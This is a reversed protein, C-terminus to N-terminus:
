TRRLVPGDPTDEVTFGLAEIQARLTDAENWNGETRAQERKDSLQQVDDPIEKESSVSIKASDAKKELSLFGIGFVTDFLLLTAKKSGQSVTEDKILRWMVAVAEPTNLDDYLAGEFLKRYVEDVEGKGKLESFARLARERATQAAHVADWTFNMSQRYHGTLLWYRYSLPSIGKDVVQRLTIANGESKGIRKSDFTVFENHLWFRAYPKNNASEAQAIENNHHIAIHDIGGTHIDFSKGLYRTSMATCEIHWGPVGKGWPADWGIESNFKWLAFDKQNKKEASVGIRSHEESGSGGLVGYDSFKATDFYIGDSTAYAYNKQLLTEIYAVMGRVHDSARPLVDPTHVNMAQIDEKFADIYTDALSLMNEMNLALGERRLGLLMKDETDDADGVLHGFDTINIVQKVEYGAYEFVRRTIDSLVFSRLNGIHAYDYVTPGCSYMKVQGKSLPQFAEKMRGKTNFLRIEATPNKKLFFM